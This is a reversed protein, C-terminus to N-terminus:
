FGCGYLRVVLWVLAIAVSIWVRECSNCEVFSSYRPMSGAMLPKQLSNPLCCLASISKLLWSKGLGKDGSMERQRKRTRWSARWFEAFCLPARCMSTRNHPVDSSIWRITLSEPMPKSLSAAFLLPPSPRMLISSRSFSRFPVNETSDSGSPPVVIRARTGRLNSLLSMRAAPYSRATKGCTQKCRCEFRFQQRLCANVSLVGESADVPPFPSKDVVIPPNSRRSLM